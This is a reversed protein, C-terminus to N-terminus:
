KRVAERVTYFLGEMGLSVCVAGYFSVYACTLLFLLLHRNQDLGM